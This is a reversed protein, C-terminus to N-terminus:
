QKTIYKLKAGDPIKRKNTRYQNNEFDEYWENVLYDPLLMDMNYVIKDISEQANKLGLFKAQHFWYLASDLNEYSNPQLDHYYCNGFMMGLEFMALARLSNDESKDIILYSYHELKGLDQISKDDCCIGCIRKLELYKFFDGQNIAQELEIIKEINPNIRVINNKKSFPWM